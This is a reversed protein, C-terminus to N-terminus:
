PQCFFDFDMGVHCDPSVQRYISSTHHKQVTRNHIRTVTSDAHSRQPPGKLSVQNRNSALWDVWLLCQLFEQFWRRGDGRKWANQLYRRRDTGWAWDRQLVNKGEKDGHFSAPQYRPYRASLSIWIQGQLKLSKKVHIKRHSFFSIYTYFTIKLHKLPSYYPNTQKKKYNTNIIIITRRQYLIIMDHGSLLAGTSKRIITSAGFNQRLFNLSQATCKQALLIHTLNIQRECDQRTDAHGCTWSCHKKYAPVSHHLKWKKKENSDPLRCSQSLQETKNKIKLM